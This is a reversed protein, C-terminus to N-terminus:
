SQPEKYSRLVLEALTLPKDAKVLAKAPFTEGKVDEKVSWRCQVDRGDMAVITMLHGGSKLTVTDGVKIKAKPM